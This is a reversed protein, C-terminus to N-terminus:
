ERSSNVKFRRKQVFKITKVLSKTHFSLIQQSIVTQSM